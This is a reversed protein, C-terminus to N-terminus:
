PPLPLHAHERTCAHTHTHIRTKEGAPISMEQWIKYTQKLHKLHPERQKSETKAADFQHLQRDKTENWTRDSVVGAAKQTGQVECGTLFATLSGEDSLANLQTPGIGSWNKLRGWWQKAQIIEWSKRNSGTIIISLRIYCQKQGRQQQQKQKSRRM